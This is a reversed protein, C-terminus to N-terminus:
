EIVERQIDDKHVLIVSKHGSELGLIFNLLQKIETSGLTCENASIKNTLENTGGKRKEEKKGEKREKMRKKM